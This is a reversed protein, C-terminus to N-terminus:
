ARGERAGLGGTPNRSGAGSRARIEPLSPEGGARAAAEAADTGGRLRASAAHAPFGEAVALTAATAAWDAAAAPTFRVRHWTRVFDAVGLGSAFRAGGGTPLVHSPGAVYDGFVEPTAAGAFVAGANRVRPALAEAEAGVLQVHEPAIREVLALAEAVSGVVLALGSGALAAAATEATALAPLQAALEREVRRPLKGDTTVLVAAARPDHEAQALLDAAILAPDADGVAVIVVESPGALGDIAVEGAVLKKAATVWANGPGAILDVRPVTATGYAFAAIAHAGGM